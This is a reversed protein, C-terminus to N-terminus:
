MRGSLIAALSPTQAQTARQTKMLELLTSTMPDSINIQGVKGMGGSPAFQPRYPQQQMMGALPGMAAAGLGPLGGGGPMGGTEGPMLMSAFGGGGGGGFLSPAFSSALSAAVPILAQWM